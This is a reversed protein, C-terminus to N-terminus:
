GVALFEEYREELADRKPATEDSHPTWIRKGHFEQLGNALMPGDSEVLVDSRVEAVLDPRIGIINSDYAAHHIKCLSLGNPVVPRGGDADRIIHAADLLEPHELRCLACSKKYAALVRERFSAQHLRTKALRMQYARDLNSLDALEGGTVVDRLDALVARFTLESPNDHVIAAASVMYMGRAIGKLYILPLGESMVSRLGVNDHHRPDNGRYRYLLFDDKSVEDDYPPAIGDRPPATRNSIPLALQRPKFIGKAATALEMHEGWFTFQKLQWWAVVGDQTSVSRLYDFAANRASRELFPDV